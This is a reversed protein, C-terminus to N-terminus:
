LRLDLAGSTRITFRLDPTMIQDNPTANTDIQISGHDLSFLLPPSLTVDRSATIKLQSTQCVRVSGGRSLKVPATQNRTTISSSGTLGAQGDVEDSWGTVAADKRSVYGILQQAPCACAIACAAAAIRVPASKWM